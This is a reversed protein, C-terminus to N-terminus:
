AQQIYKNFAEKLEVLSSYSPSTSAYEYLADMDKSGTALSVIKM